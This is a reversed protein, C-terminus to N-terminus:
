VRLPYIMSCVTCYTHRQPCGKKKGPGPPSVAQFSTRSAGLDQRPVQIRCTKKRQVSHFAPCQRDRERAAGSAATYCRGLRGLRHKRYITRRVRVPFLHHMFFPKAQVARSKQRNVTLIEQVNNTEIDFSPRLAVSAYHLVWSSRPLWNGQALCM